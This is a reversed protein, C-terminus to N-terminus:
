IVKSCADQYKKEAKQCFNVFDPKSNLVQTARDFITNYCADKELSDTLTKCFEIASSAGDPTWFYDQVAGILCQNRLEGRPANSCYAISDKSHFRTAGSIDRGLSGFCASKYSDAISNCEKAIKAFDGDLLQVMRSTQYFYCAGKYKEAVETCPFHPNDNLYKTSHGSEPSLGGVINEMFVGSHCSAQMTNLLDCGKLADHIEYDMWAMLGHGIGHVCQHSFFPNQASACITKLKESLNDTGNKAFYAETAGHYGGSHCPAAPEAFVNNGYIEFAFRGAKHATNHCDGFKASLNVLQSITKEFGFKKVYSYLEEDSNFIAESGEAIKDNYHLKQLAENSKPSNKKFVSLAGITKSVFNKISGIIKSFFSQPKSASDTKPQNDEPSATINGTFQPFLHDHYKWLGSKEFKFGWSQSPNIPKKPDFEPYIGHTPHINSAPWRDRSDTNEFIVTDGNKIEAESPEFGDETMHITTVAGLDHALASNTTTLSFIIALLIIALFTKDKIKMSLYFCLMLPLALPIQKQGEKQISSTGRGDKKTSM